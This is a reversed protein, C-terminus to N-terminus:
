ERAGGNKRSGVFTFALAIMVVAGKFVEQYNSPVGAFYVVNGILVLVFAGCTAGLMSGRGGALSIGGIVVAAVSTLTYSLGLRADGSATQASICAAALFVFLWGLLYGFIKLRSVSLGAKFVADQDSGTAILRRGLRHRQLIAWLALAFVMPLAAVPLWGLNAAFATGLAEPVAGGPQPMLALALGFWIAGTAFTAILANQRFHGVLIGNVAGCALAAALAAVCTEWPGWGLGPLASLLCNVLSIGAGVSLDLEGTLVIVAQAICVLVVPAASQLNSSVSDAAFFGPQLMANVALTVILMVVAPLATSVPSRGFRTRLSTRGARAPRDLPTENARATM